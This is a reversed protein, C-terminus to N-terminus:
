FPGYRNMTDKLDKNLYKTSGALTTTATNIHHSVTKTLTNYAIMYCRQNASLASKVTAITSLM